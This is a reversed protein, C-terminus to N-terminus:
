VGDFVIVKVQMGEATAGLKAVAQLLPYAKVIVLATVGRKVVAGRILNVVSQRV